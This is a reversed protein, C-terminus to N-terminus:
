AEYHEAHSKEKFDEGDHLDHEAGGVRLKGERLENEREEPTPVHVKSLPVFYPVAEFYEDLEELPIGRTEPM